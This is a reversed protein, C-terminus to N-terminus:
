LEIREIKIRFSTKAGFNEPVESSNYITDMGSYCHSPIRREKIEIACTYLVKCKKGFGINWPSSMGM